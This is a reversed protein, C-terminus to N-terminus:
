SSVVMWIIAQKGGMATGRGGSDKILGKASLESCRPRVSMLPLSLRNAIQEPTGPRKKIEALVRERLLPAKAKVAQAAARSTERGKHGPGGPYVDDFLSPQQRAM